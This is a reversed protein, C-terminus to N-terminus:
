SRAKAANFAQQVATRQAIGARALSHGYYQYTALVDAFTADPKTGVIKNVAKEMNGAQVWRQIFGGLVPSGGQAELDGAAAAGASAESKSAERAARREQMAKARAAAAAAIGGSAASGDAKVSRPSRDVKRLRAGGKIAAMLDVRGGSVAPRKVRHGGGPKAPRATRVPPPPPPAPIARTRVPPPPPALPVFGAGGADKWRQEAMQATQQAEQCVQNAEDKAARAAAELVELEPEMGYLTYSAMLLSLIKISKKM